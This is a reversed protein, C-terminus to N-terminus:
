SLIWVQTVLTGNLSNSGSFTTLRHMAIASIVSPFTFPLSLLNFEEPANLPYLVLLYAADNHNSHRGFRGNSYPRSDFSILYAALSLNVPAAMIALTPDISVLYIRELVLRYLVVPLMFFYIGICTAALTNSFVTHGFQTGALSSSILGVPYLFGVQFSTRCKSISSRFGFFLVMM